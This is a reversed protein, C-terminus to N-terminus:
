KKAGAETPKASTRKMSIVMSKVGNTFFTSTYSDGTPTMEYRHPVIEGTMDPAEWHMTIMGTEENREGEMVSLYSSMNDIWIGTYKGKEADFGSCGHGQYPMGMFDCHFESLTWFPGFATMTETAAVPETPMGPGFMTLTGKWEGVAKQMEVHETTPQPMPPMEHEEQLLPRAAAVVITGAAVVATTTLLTRFRHM